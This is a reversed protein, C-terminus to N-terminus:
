EKEKCTECTVPFGDGGEEDVVQGCVQCCTGDLAMDAWEGM